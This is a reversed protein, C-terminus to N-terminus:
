SLTTLSSKYTYFTFYDQSTAEAVMAGLWLVVTGLWFRVLERMRSDM